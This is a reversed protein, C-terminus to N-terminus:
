SERAKYFRHEEWVFAEIFYKKLKKNEKREFGIIKNQINGCEIQLLAEQSEASIEMKELKGVSSFANKEYIVEKVTNPYEPSRVRNIVVSMILRKGEVGQNGAEAEALKMLLQAEGYTLEVPQPPELGIVEDICLYDEVEHSELAYVQAKPKQDAAPKPEPGLALFLVLGLIIKKNM